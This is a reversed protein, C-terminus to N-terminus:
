LSKPNHLNLYIFALAPAVVLFCSGQVLARDRNNMSNDLALQRSHYLAYLGGLAPLEFDLLRPLLAHKVDFGRCALLIWAAISGYEIALGTVVGRWHEKKEEDSMPCYLAGAAFSILIIALLSKRIMFDM